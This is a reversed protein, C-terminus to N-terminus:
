TGEGPFVCCMPIVLNRSLWSPPSFVFFLFTAWKIEINPLSSPWYLAQRLHRIGWTGHGAYSLRWHWMFLGRSVSVQVGWVWCTFDAVKVCDTRLWGQFCSVRDWVIIIIITNIVFLTCFLFLTGFKRVCPSVTTNNGTIFFASPLQWWHCFLLFTCKLFAIGAMNLYPVSSPLCPAPLGKTTLCCSRRVEPPPM